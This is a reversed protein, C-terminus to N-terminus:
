RALAASRRKLSPVRVRGRGRLNAARLELLSLLDATSSFPDAVVRDGNLALAALLRGDREAMLVPGVLPRTSDLQALKVLAPSDETRAFRITVTPTTPVYSM